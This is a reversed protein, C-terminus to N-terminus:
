SRARHRRPSAPCHAEAAAPPRPDAGHALGQGSAQLTSAGDGHLYRCVTQEIDGTHQTVPQPKLHHGADGTHVHDIMQFGYVMKARDSM